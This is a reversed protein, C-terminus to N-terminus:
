QALWARISAIACEQSNTRNTGGNWQSIGVQFSSGLDALTHAFQHSVLRTDGADNWISVELPLGPFQSIRVRYWTNNQYSFPPLHQSDEPSVTSYPSLSSSYTWSRLSDFRDGFLGVRVFRRHDFSNVLWLDFLGDIFTGGQDLTNIRAEVEGVAGPLTALSLYGFRTWRPANEVSLRAVNAGDITTLTVRQGGAYAVTNPRFPALSEDPLSGPSATWIQSQDSDFPATFTSVSASVSSVASLLSAYFLAGLL